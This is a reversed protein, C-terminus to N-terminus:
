MDRALADLEALRVKAERAIIVADLFYIGYSKLVGPDTLIEPLDRWEWKGAIFAALLRKVNNKFLGTISLAMLFRFVMDQVDEKTPADYRVVSLRHRCSKKIHDIHEPDYYQMLRGYSLHLLSALDDVMRCDRVFYMIAHRSFPLNLVSPSCAYVLREIVVSTCHPNTCHFQRSRDHVLKTSCCPCTSPLLTNLQRAGRKMLVKGLIPLTGIYTVAVRDGRAYDRRLLDDIDELSIRRHDHESPYTSSTEVKPRIRGFRDPELSINTLLVDKDEEVMGIEVVVQSDSSIHSRNHQIRDAFIALSRLAIPSKRTWNQWVLYESRVNELLKVTTTKPIAWGDAFELWLLQILESYSTICDMSAIAASWNPAFGLHEAFEGSTLIYQIASEMRYFTPRGSQALTKNINLFVEKELYLVGSIDIDGIKHTETLFDGSLITPIARTLQVVGTIDITERDHSYFAAEFEFSGYFLQIQIGVPIPLTCLTAEDPYKSLVDELRDVSIMSRSSPGFQTHM